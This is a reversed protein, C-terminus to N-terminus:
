LHYLSTLDVFTYEVIATLENNQLYRTLVCCFIRKTSIYWSQQQVTLIIIQISYYMQTHKWLYTNVTLRDFMIHHKCSCVLRFVATDHVTYLECQNEALNRKANCGVIINEWFGHKEVFLYLCLSTLPCSRNFKKNQSNKLMYGKYNYHTLSRATGQIRWILILANENIIILKM